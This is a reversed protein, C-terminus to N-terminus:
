KVQERRMSAKGTMVVQDSFKGFVQVNTIDSVQVPTELCVWNEYKDPSEGEIQLTLQRGVNTNGSADSKVVLLMSTGAGHYANEKMTDARCFRLDKGALFRGGDIYNTMGYM